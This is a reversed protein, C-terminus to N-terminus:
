IEIALKHLGSYFSSLSILVLELLLNFATVQSFYARSINCTLFSNLKKFDNEHCFVLKALRDNFKSHSNTLCMKIQLVKLDLM